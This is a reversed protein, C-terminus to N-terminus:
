ESLERKRFARFPYGEGYLAWKYFEIFNLRLGHVVGSVIALMLNLAHGVIFILLGAIISFGGEAAFAQDSLDNFTLALSSSALGLAFLRLYSLVDGFLNTVDTLGKLGELGRLVASSLSTVKRDSANIFILLAAVGVGGWAARYASNDQGWFLALLPGAVLLVMWGLHLWARRTKWYVWVQHANAVLLHVIGCGISLGMMFNFDNLDLVNLQSLWSSEDPVRGFYSGVLVGWICSLGAITLLLPRLRRGTERLALKRWFVLVLFLMLAAYGADSLIMAFFLAFSAFLAVAPDWSSYSPTQYFNVLLEGGTFAPSNRLLTPPNDEARAVRSYVALTRKQCFDQLDQLREAAVWGYTIFLDPHSQTLQQARALETIDEAQAQCQSLMSLYRTFKQREAELDELQIELATRQHSLESLSYQGTHVRDSPLIDTSPEKESVLVLWIQNHSRHVVQWPCDLEQLHHEYKRPLLYFWLRQGGISDGEPFAFDGWPTLAAERERIADIRDQTRRRTEENQLITDVLGTLEQSDIRTSSAHMQFRRKQAGQLYHVAKKLRESLKHVESLTQEVSNDRHAAAGRPESLHVGGWCQLATLTADKEQAPGIIVVKHLPTISM